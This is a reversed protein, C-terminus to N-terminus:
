FLFQSLLSVSLQTGHLFNERIGLQFNLDSDSVYATWVGIGAGTVSAVPTGTGTTIINFSKTWSLFLEPGASFGKKFQFFQKGFLTFQLPKFYNFLFSHVSLGLELRRKSVVNVIRYLASIAASGGSSKNWGLGLEFAGGSPRVIEPSLDPGSQPNSTDDLSLADLAADGTKEVSKESSSAAKVFKKAVFGEVGNGKIQVWKGQSGLVQYSLGKKAAGVKVLRKGEKAMIPANDVATVDEAWVQQQGLFVLGCLFVVRLANKFTM